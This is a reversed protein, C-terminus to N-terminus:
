LSGSVETGDAVTDIVVSPNSYLEVNGFEQIYKTHGVVRVVYSCYDMDGLLNHITIGCTCGISQCLLGTM